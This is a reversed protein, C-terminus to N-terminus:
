IRDYVKRLQALADNLWPEWEEQPKDNMSQALAYETALRTQVTPPYPYNIRALKVTTENQRFRMGNHDTTWTEKQNSIQQILQEFADPRSAYDKWLSLRIHRSKLSSGFPLLMADARSYAYVQVEVTKGTFKFGYREWRDGYTETTLKPTHGQFHLPLLSHALQLLENL